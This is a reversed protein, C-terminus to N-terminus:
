QQGAEHTVRWWMTLAGLTGAACLAVIVPLHWVATAIASGALLVLSVILSARGERESAVLLPRAMGVALMLGLGITAPVIGRLATQIVAMRQLSAYLATMVITITVSPLILGVLSILAGALGAVAPM